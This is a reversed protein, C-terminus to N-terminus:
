MVPFSVQVLTGGGPNDEIKIEGEILELLRAVIYLGVGTSSEGMTPRASLKSFKGFLQLKDEASFGQGKDEVVVNLYERNMQSRSMKIRVDGEIPSYKVANSLINEVVHSFVKLDSNFFLEQGFTELNIKIKKVLTQYSLNQIINEMIGYADIEEIKINYNGTELSTLNIIEDITNLVKGSSKSIDNIIAKKKEESFADYNENIIRTISVVGALPSKLDHAALRILESKRADDQIIKRNLESIQNNKFFSKVLHLFAVRDLVIVLMMVFFTNQMLLSSNLGDYRGRDYGM